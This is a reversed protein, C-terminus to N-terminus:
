PKRPHEQQLAAIVREYEADFQSIVTAARELNGMEGLAEIQACLQALGTAGVTLSSSKLAHASQQLGKGDDHAIARHIGQVRPPSDELYSDIVEAILGEFDDGAIERLDQLV